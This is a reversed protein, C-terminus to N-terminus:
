RTKFRALDVPSITANLNLNVAEKPAYEGTVKIAMDLAKLSTADETSDCHEKLKTAKYEATLGAEVLEDKLAAIVMPKRAMNQAKQMPYELNPFSLEGIQKHTAQPYKKKNKVYEIEDPKLYKKAPETPKAVKKNKYRTRTKWIAAVTVGYRKALAKDPWMERNKDILEFMEKRDIKAPTM